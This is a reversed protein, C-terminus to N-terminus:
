YTGIVERLWYSLVALRWVSVAHTRDGRLYQKKLERARGEHITGPPFKWEPDLLLEKLPGSLWTIEGPTVFGKKDKRFAISEPLYSEMARRLIYKSWGNKMIWPYGQHFAFHPLRHDLLPVRSEISFRMSNRDEYYLLNNLSTQFIQHHLFQLLRRNYNGTNLRIDPRSVVTKPLAWRFEARYLTEEDAAFTLATKLAAMWKQKANFSKIEAWENWEKKAASFGNYKLEDHLFRYGAHNYGALYEDAGQGDLVVKVGNQAALKMVFYQSYPSSSHVPVEMNQMFDQFHDTLDKGQPSLTFLQLNDPYRNVVQHAFPREDVGHEGEYYVHFAKIKLEPFRAAMLAALSSSDLGGSLCAGVSVDSRCHIEVSERLMERFKHAAEREDTIPTKGEADDAHWYPNIEIKGKRVWMNNAPPLVSIDRFFSDKGNDIWGLQMFASVMSSNPEKGTGPFSFLAKQESAFALGNKNKVYYFPKIGFRDRSCFLEGTQRNLLAFSWMGVFRNVCDEGWEEFAAPIVETDSATIFSYGKQILSNKIEVYNYIEGNFVICLDGRFFPQNAGESLDIISLRNHGLYVGEHAMVGRADPGRHPIKELMRHLIRTGEELPLDASVIGAIGCM